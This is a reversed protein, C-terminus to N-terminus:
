APGRKGDSVEKLVKLERALKVQDMYLKLMFAFIGVWIFTYALYLNTLGAM